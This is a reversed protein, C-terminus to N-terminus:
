PSPPWGMRVDGALILSDFFVKLTGATRTCGRPLSSLKLVIYELSLWTIYSAGDADEESILRALDTGGRGFIM